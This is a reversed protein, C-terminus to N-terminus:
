QVPTHIKVSRVLRLRMRRIVAHLRGQRGYQETCNLVFVHVMEGGSDLNVLMFTM